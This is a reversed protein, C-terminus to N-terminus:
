AGRRDFPQHVFRFYLEAVLHLDRADPLRRADGLGVGLLLPAFHECQAIGDVAFQLGAVNAQGHAALRRVDADVVAIGGLPVGIREAGGLAAIGRLQHVLQARFVPLAAEQM